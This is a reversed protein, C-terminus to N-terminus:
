NARLRYFQAPSANTVSASVWGSDITWPTSVTGWSGTLAGASELLSLSGNNTWTLHLVESGASLNAGAILLPPPLPLARFDDAWMQGESIPGYFTDGAVCFSFTSTATMGPSMQSVTLSDLQTWASGAGTSDYWAQITQNAPYYVLRLGFLTNNTSPVVVPSTSGGELARIWVSGFSSGTRHQGMGLGFGHFGGNAFAETDLVFLYLASGGDGNPVTNHGVIDVMWGEAVTPKGNWIKGARQHDSTTISDLLSAHGNTVVVTMQGLWQNTITWHTSSYLTSSFDDTGVWDAGTCQSAALLLFLTVVRVTNKAIWIRLSPHKM